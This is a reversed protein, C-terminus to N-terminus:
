CGRVTVVIGKYQLATQLQMSVGIAMVFHPLSALCGITAKGSKRTGERWLGGKLVLRAKVLEAGREDRTPAAGM